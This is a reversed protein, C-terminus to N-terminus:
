CNKKGGPSVGDSFKLHEWCPVDLHSTVTTLVLSDGVGTKPFLSTGSWSQCLILANKGSHTPYRLGFRLWRGPQRCVRGPTAPARAGPFFWVTVNHPITFIPVMETKDLLGSTLIGDKCSTISFSSFFFSLVFSPFLYFLFFLWSCAILFFFVSCSYLANGTFWLVWWIEM